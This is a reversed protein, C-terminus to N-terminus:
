GRWWGESTHLCSMLVLSLPLVVVFFEFQSRGDGYHCFLSLFEFHLRGDGGDGGVSGGVGDAACYNNVDNPNDYNYWEGSASEEDGAFASAQSVRMSAKPRLFLRALSWPKYHCDGPLLNGAAGATTKSLTVKSLTTSARSKCFVTEWEPKEGFFDIFFKEKKAKASKDEPKRV